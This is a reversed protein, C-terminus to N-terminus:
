AGFYVRERDYHASFEDLITNKELDAMLDGSSHIMGEDGPYLSFFRMPVKARGYEARLSLEHTMLYDHSAIFIQMGSGALALLTEVVKVVLHPNLNAEPEDWFLISKKGLTGNRILHIVSAIKRLGEALLHSEMDGSKLKVKFEEGELRVKGGLIRELPKALAAAEEEPVGRLTSGSMAVCLDFYTEDFNLIRNQYAHIFGGYMALIERSPLFISNDELTVPKHQSLSLGKPSIQFDLIQNAGSIVIHAANRGQRRRVLRDVKNGQPKFVNALKQKLFTEFDSTEANGHLECIKWVSYMLKMLHSKGSGNIGILVNLGPCFDFTQKAFGSFEELAVSAIM